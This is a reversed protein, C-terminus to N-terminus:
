ELTRTDRQAIIPVGHRALLAAAVGFGRQYVKDQPDGLYISHSGCSPSIDMMIAVDVRSRQALELMAQAGCLSGATWDQGDFTRVRARGDLVAMGDGGYISSFARPTGFSAHEPCFHVAEVRDSAVIRQVLAVAYHSGEWGCQTGVLCASTLLRLPRDDGPLFPLLPQPRVASRPQSSDVPEHVM